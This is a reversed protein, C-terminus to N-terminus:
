RPGFLRARIEQRRVKLSVTRPLEDVFRVVTPKKYSALRTRAHAVVDEETLQAGPTRVIVAAVTQGFREHPAAVVAVDAVEPMEAIAAEVETPYINMGGSVILDVRREHVYIYGAPDISGIDGTYYWGGDLVEATAEPRAWYGAMASAARIALEGETTGDHPLPNRQEDVIEVVADATARGASDYLSMAECHAGFDQVCTATVIGGSMETMGWGEVLRPKVAEGLRELKERSAKSASHLVTTLSDLAERRNELLDCFDDIGPTPVYVFNARDRVVLDIARQADWKGLLRMSGGVYLHSMGFACVTATFSMSGSYAAYSALPLHYSVTNMRAINKVSRHTLMAGKPFGTTGSTYAIIFLDNEDPSPPESPAGAAALDEFRVAGLATESGHTVVLRFDRSSFAEAAVGAYADSIMLCHADCDEVIFTAERPTLRNNVPVVVFGARAAAMYTELYQVSDDAWVAVRDGRQLGRALMANAVRNAREDVQAYTREDGGDIAFLVRNPSRRAGLSLLDGILDPSRTATATTV